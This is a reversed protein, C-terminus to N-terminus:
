SDTLPLHLIKDQRPVEEAQDAEWTQQQRLCKRLPEEKSAMKSIYEQTSQTKELVTAKVSM